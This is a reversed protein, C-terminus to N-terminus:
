KFRLIAGIGGFAKWFQMGEDTDTSIIETEAGISKAQNILYDIYEMEELVEFDSGCDCKGEAASETEAIVEKKKGCGRCEVVFVEKELEESVLLTKVQGMKIAEMVEKEGYAALGTKVVNRMFEQVLEMEKIIGVGRLLDHSKQVLERIGSEDTYATGVTGLLKSKIRHDLHGANLFDDKTMGPGGVITGKLKDIDKVFIKNMSESVKKYFNQEAEQRLHEFRKASQGGARIKGPVRSPIEEIVRYKKGSLLAITADKKDITLLAYLETPQAMEELPKLNFEDDCWYLKTQLDAIPKVAFMKIDSKGPQDSVNGAFVALGKKPINFDIRKLFNTVRKLAGQVNKRTNSDKINSSQSREETLQNMVSSRDTGYPIYVTILETGSGKFRKLKKLKKNFVTREADSAQEIESM